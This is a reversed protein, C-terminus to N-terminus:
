VNQIVLHEVVAVVIAEVDELASSEAGVKAVEKVAMAVVARVDVIAVELVAIMVVVEVSGRVHQHVYVQAHDM